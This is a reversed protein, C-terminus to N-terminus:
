VKRGGTPLAPRAETVPEANLKVSQDVPDVDITIGRRHSERILERALQDLHKRDNFSLIQTPEGALLQRKEIFIGVAIAKDKLSAQQIDWDSVSDLVRQARDSTLALLQSTKVDQVALKAPLFQRDLRRRLADVVKKPLGVDRAAKAVSDLLPNGLLEIAGAVVEPDQTEEVPLFKGDPGKQVLTEKKKHAM